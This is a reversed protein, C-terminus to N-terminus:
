LRNSRVCVDNLIRHIVMSSTLHTNHIHTNNENQTIPYVHILILVAYFTDMNPTKRDRNEWM